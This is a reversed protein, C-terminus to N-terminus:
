HTPSDIPIVETVVHNILTVPISVIILRGLDWFRLVRVWARFRLGKVRRM